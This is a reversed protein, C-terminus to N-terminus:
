GTQKVTHLGRVRQRKDCEGQKQYCYGKEGTVNGGAPCGFDIGHHRQPIFLSRTGSKLRSTNPIRTEPSPFTATAMALAKKRRPSKHGISPLASATPVRILFGADVRRLVVFIGAWSGKVNVTYPRM